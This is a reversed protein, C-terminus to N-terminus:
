WIKGYRSKTITDCLQPGYHQHFVLPSHMCTDTTKHTKKSLSDQTHTYLMITLIPFYCLLHFAKPSIYKIWLTEPDRVRSFLTIEM